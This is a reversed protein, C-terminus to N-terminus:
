SYPVEQFLDYNELIYDCIAKEIMKSMYNYVLPYYHGNIFSKAIFGETYETPYLNYLDICHVKDYLNTIYRIAENYNEVTSGESKPITFVFIHAKPNYEKIQRILYDFNGYYSDANDAHNSAIDESTGVNLGQRLDNAGMGVLYCDTEINATTIHTNRWDKATTGGVAINTFTRGTRLQLYGAWNNGTPRATASDVSVNGVKTYGCAMSDGIVTYKPFVQMFNENFFNTILSPFKKVDVVCIDETFESINAIESYDDSKRGITFKFYRNAPIHIKSANYLNRTLLEEDDNYTALICRFKESNFCLLVDNDYKLFENTTIRCTWSSDFTGDATLNGNAYSVNMLDNIGINKAVKTLNQTKKRISICEETFIIIDSTVDSITLIENNNNFVIKYEYNSFDFSSFTKVSIEVVEIFQYNKDYKIITFNLLNSTIKYIASPIFDTRIRPYNEDIEESGINTNIGGVELNLIDLYEINKLSDIGTSVQKIQERVAEGASLYVVGNAGNRIDVLESNNETTNNNAVINAIQAKLNDNVDNIKRELVKKSNTSDNRLSEVTDNYDASSVMNAIKTELKNFSYIEEDADTLAYDSPRTKAIVPIEITEIIKFTTDEYVGVYAKITLAEQLLSNPISVTVVGSSFISQRVIARDMNANTFHIEPAVSLNLGNIILEQNIDWQYLSDTVYNNYSNFNAKIM